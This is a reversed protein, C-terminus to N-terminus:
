KKKNKTCTTKPCKKTCYFITEPSCLFKIIITNCVYINVAQMKIKNFNFWKLNNKNKFWNLKM